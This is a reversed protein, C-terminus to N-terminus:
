VLTGIRSTDETVGTSRGVSTDVTVSTIGDTVSTSMSTNHCLSGPAM